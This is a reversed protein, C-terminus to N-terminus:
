PREVSKLRVTIDLLTEEEDTRFDTDKDKDIMEFLGTENLENVSKEFLEQNFVDGARVLM